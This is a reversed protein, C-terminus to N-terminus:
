LRVFRTTASGPAKPKLWAVRAQAAMGAQRSSGGRAKKQSPTCM